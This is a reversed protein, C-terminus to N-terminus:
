GSHGVRVFTCELHQVHPAAHAAGQALDGGEGARGDGAEVVVLVLHLATRANWGRDGGM